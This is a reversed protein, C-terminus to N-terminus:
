AAQAKAARYDNLNIIKANPVSLKRCRFDYTESFTEVGESAFSIAVESVIREQHIFGDYPLVYTACWYGDEDGVFDVDDVMVMTGEVKEEFAERALEATTLAENCIGAYALFEHVYIWGMSAMVSEASIKGPRKFRAGCPLAVFFDGESSM